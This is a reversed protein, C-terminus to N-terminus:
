LLHGRRFNVMTFIELIQKQIFSKNIQTYGYCFTSCNLKLQVKLTGLEARQTQPFPDPMM